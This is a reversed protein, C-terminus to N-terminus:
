GWLDKMKRRVDRSTTRAPTNEDNDAGDNVGDGGDLQDTVLQEFYELVKDPLFRTRQAFSHHDGRGPWYYRLPYCVYLHNKARTLAVYFLRLEEEIEAPNKTALDSPINGDAAHIM